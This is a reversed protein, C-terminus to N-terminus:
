TESDDTPKAKYLSNWLDVLGAADLSKVLKKELLAVYANRRVLQEQLNKESSQLTAMASELGPVRAAAAIDKRWLFVYALALIGNIAGSVSLLITTWEM